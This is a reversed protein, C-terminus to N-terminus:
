RIFLIEFMQPIHHHKSFSVPRPSCLRATTYNELMSLAPFRKSGSVSAPRSPSPCTMPQTSNSVEDQGLLPTASMRIIDHLKLAPLPFRCCSTTAARKQLATSAANEEVDFIDCFDKIHTSISPLLSFSM